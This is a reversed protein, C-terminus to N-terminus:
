RTHWGSKGGFSAVFETNLGAEPPARGLPEFTVALRNCMRAGGQSGALYKFGRAQMSFKLYYVCVHCVYYVDFRLYGQGM